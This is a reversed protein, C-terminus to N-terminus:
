DPKASMAWTVLVFAIVLLLSLVAAVRVLGSGREGNSAALRRAGIGSVIISILLVPGSADGVIYGMDLWSPPDDVDNWGERSAIWEAAIRM